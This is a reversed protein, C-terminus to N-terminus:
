HQDQKDIWDITTVFTSLDTLNVSQQNRISHFPIPYYPNPALTHMHIYIDTYIPDFWIYIYDIPKVVVHPLCHAYGRRDENYDDSQRLVM